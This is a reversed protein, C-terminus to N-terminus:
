LGGEWDNEKAIMLFEKKETEFIRNKEDGYLESIFGEFIVEPNNSEVAKTRKLIESNNLM